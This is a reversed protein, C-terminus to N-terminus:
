NVKGSVKGSTIHEISLEDTYNFTFYVTVFADKVAPSSDMTFKLLISDGQYMVPSGAEIDVPGEAGYNDKAAGPMNLTINYGLANTMNIHISYGNGSPYSEIYYGICPLGPQIICEAQRYRGASFYGSYVIYGVVILLALLAWGYITLYEMAVQGKMNKRSSMYTKVKEMMVGLVYMYILCNNMFYKIFYKLNIYM